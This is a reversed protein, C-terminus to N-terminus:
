QTIADLAAAAAEEPTTEGGLVEVVSQQLVRAIQDYEPFAPPPMAMELQHELFPWYADSDGILEFAAYRTPLYGSAQSWAIENEPELLWEILLLAMGLQAPDRTTTALVRGRAIAVPEGDHTPITGYQTTRLVGRDRLFDSAQTHAVGVEASVYAPWIDETNSIELVEPPIVGVESGQRYYDLASVLIQQDLMPNGEDDQLEGGLALYQILFADNVLGNRGKAPFVYPTTLSLVDSWTVPTGTIKSTNYILHEVDLEFAIGMLQDDVTGAARAAPLMDDIIAPSILEDLPVLTGARAAAALGVTDLVVVDPLVSPAVQSATRLYGLVSGTGTDNKLVVSVSATPYANEFARLGDGFAEGAEGDAQSSVAEVTWFTLNITTEPAVPSAEVPPSPTNETPSLITTPSMSPTVITDSISDTTAPTPTSQLGCGATLLLVAMGTPCCIATIRAAPGFGLM